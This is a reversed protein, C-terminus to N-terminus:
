SRLLWKELGVLSAAGLLASLVSSGIVSLHRREDRSHSLAEKIARVDAKLEGVDGKLEIVHSNLGDLTLREAQTM